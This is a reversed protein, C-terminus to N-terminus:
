RVNLELLGALDGLHIRGNEIDVEQVAEPSFPILIEREGEGHVVLVPTGGTELIWATRGLVVGERDLVALGVLDHLFFEGEDLPALEERPLMVSLDRLREADSISDVGKLKMLYLDKNTRIREVEFPRPPDQGIFVRQSALLTEPHDTHLRLRVEGKRGHPRLIRAVTILDQNM